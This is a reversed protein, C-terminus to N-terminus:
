VVLTTLICFQDFAFSIWESSIKLIEINNFLISLIPPSHVGAEATLARLRIDHLRPGIEALRDIIKAPEWTQWMYLINMDKKIHKVM